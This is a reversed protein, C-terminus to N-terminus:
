NKLEKKLKNIINKISYNELIINGDFFYISNKVHIIPIIIGLKKYVSIEFSFNNLSKYNKDIEKIMKFIIEVDINYNLHLDSGIYIYVLDLFRYVSDKIYVAEYVKLIEPSLIKFKSIEAKSLKVNDDLEGLLYDRVEKLTMEKRLLAIKDIRKYIKEKEFFTEQGTKTATNKFWSEPILGMRKWRYLQGYSINKEKLLDQKSILKEM